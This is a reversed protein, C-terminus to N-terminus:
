DQRAAIFSWALAVVWGIVTWGTLLNVFLIGAAYRKHGVIAIITPLLFLTIGFIISVVWVFSIM